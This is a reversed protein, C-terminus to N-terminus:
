PRLLVRSPDPRLILSTRSICISMVSWHRHIGQFQDGHEAGSANGGVLAPIGSDVGSRPEWERPGRTTRRRVRRERTLLTRFGSRELRYVLRFCTAGTRVVVSGFNRSLSGFVSLGHS